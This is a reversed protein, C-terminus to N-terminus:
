VNELIKHVLHVKLAHMSYIIKFYRHNQGYSHQIKAVLTAQMYLDKTRWKYLLIFELNLFFHYKKKLKLVCVEQHQIKNHQDNSL